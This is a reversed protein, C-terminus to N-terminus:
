EYMGPAKAFVDLEKIETEDGMLGYVTETKEITGVKQAQESVDLAGDAVYYFYNPNTVPKTFGPLARSLPKWGKKAALAAVQEKLDDNDDAMPVYLIITYRPYFWHKLANLKYTLDQPVYYPLSADHGTAPYMTVNTAMVNIMFDKRLGYQDNLLIVKNVGKELLLKKSLSVDSYPPQSVGGCEYEPHKPNKTDVLMPTGVHIKLGEPEFSSRVPPMVFQACGTTNVAPSIRLTFAGSSSKPKRIFSLYSHAPSNPVFRSNMIKFAPEAAKAPMIAAATVATVLAAALSIRKLTQAFTM